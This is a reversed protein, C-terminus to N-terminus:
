KKVLEVRRNKARGDPLRNDAIPRSEGFGAAVLRNAPIGDEILKATVARARADSLTQNAAAEGVDDTHGEVGVRLAPNAKLLGAVQAIQPLSAADITASGTAFRIDLAIFGVGNLAALMADAEIVQVHPTREVINLIYQRNNPATGVNVEVWVEGTERAAMLINRSADQHLVKGGAAVIANAYNRLINVHGPLPLGAPLRYHIRTRKGEVVTVNKPVAFRYSDFDAQQYLAIQYGPMRNPFLPHDASGPLDQGHVPAALGIVFGALCCATWRCSRAIM